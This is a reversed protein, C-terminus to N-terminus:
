YVPRRCRRILRVCRVIRHVSRCTV